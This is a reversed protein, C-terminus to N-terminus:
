KFKLLYRFFFAGVFPANVTSSIEFVDSWASMDGIFKERNRADEFEAQREYFGEM